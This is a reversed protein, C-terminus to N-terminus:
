SQSYPSSGDQSTSDYCTTGAIASPVKYQELTTCAYGINQTTAIQIWSGNSIGWLVEYGGICNGQHSINGSAYTQKYINSISVILECTQNATDFSEAMDSIYTRFSSPANVLKSVSTSSSTIEVSPNYTIMDPVTTSKASIPQVKTVSTKKDLTVHSSNKWFIFGLTGIIAIVLVIAIVTLVNGDQRQSNRIMYNDYWVFVSEKRFTGISPERRYLFNYGNTFLWRLM